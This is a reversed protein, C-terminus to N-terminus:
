ATWCTVAKFTLLNQGTDRHPSNPKIYNMDARDDNQMKYDRDTMTEFIDKDLINVTEYM